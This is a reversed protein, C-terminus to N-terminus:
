DNAKTQRENRVGFCTIMGKDTVVFIYQGNSVPAFSVAGLLKRKEILAGDSADLLYFDGTKSGFVVYKGVKLVSATVVNVADFRWNIRGDDVSLSIVEGGSQGVILSSGSVAVAGWSVAGTKTQWIIHGDSIDIKYVIGTIDCTYISKDFALSTVVPNDLAVYLIQEGNKPDVAFLGGEESVQWVSKGDFLPPTTFRQKSRFQWLIEGTIKDFAYLRGEASSLILKEEIIISGGVADKVDKKWVTKRNLLNICRLKSKKPATAFYSLSDSIVLGTQAVGRPKIYGEYEGTKTSLFKIRNRAGPYILTKNYITLPGVPKDNSKYEWIVDLKGGFEANDDAGTADIDGRYFAWESSQNIMDRKLSYKKGCGNLSFICIVILILSKRLM